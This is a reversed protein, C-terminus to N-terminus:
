ATVEAPTAEAKKAKAAENAKALRAMNAEYQSKLMLRFVPRGAKADKAQKNALKILTESALGANVRKRITLTCIGPNKAVLDKITFATKPFAVEKVPAGPGRKAVAPTETVNTEINTNTEM